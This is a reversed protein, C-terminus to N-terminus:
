KNKIVHLGTLLETVQEAICVFCLLKDGSESPPPTPILTPLAEQRSACPCDIIDYM